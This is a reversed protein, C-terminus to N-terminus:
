MNPEYSHLPKEIIVVFNGGIPDLAGAHFAALCIASDDSYTNTGYIDIEDKDAICNSACGVM